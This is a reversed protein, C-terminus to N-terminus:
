WATRTTILNKEDLHTIDGIKESTFQWRGKLEPHVLQSAVCMQQGESTNTVHITSISGNLLALARDNQSSEGNMGLIRLLLRLAGGHSVIIIKFPLDVSSIEGLTDKLFSVLRVVVEDHTEFSPPAKGANQPDDVFLKTASEITHQNTLGERAGQLVERLRTDHTCTPTSPSSIDIHQDIMIRSTDRARLLDSSIVKYSTSDHQLLAVGTEAAQLRGRETLPSDFSQGQVIGDRNAETEGHRVLVLTFM